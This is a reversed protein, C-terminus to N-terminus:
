SRTRRRCPIARRSASRSRAWCSARRVRGPVRSRHGRDPADVREAPRDARATSRMTPGPRSTASSRTSRSGSTPASPASARAWSGRWGRCCTRTPTPVVSANPSSRSCRTRRRASATSSGTPSGRSGRARRNSRSRWSWRRWWRSSRTTATGALRRRRGGCRPLDAHRLARVRRLDPDQARRRRPRLPPLAPDRDRDLAAVDPVRCRRDLRDAITDQSSFTTALSGSSRSVGFRVGGVQDTSARCRDFSPLPPHAVRRSGRLDGPLCLAILPDLRRSVASADIYLPNAVSVDVSGTLTKQGFLSTSLRDAGRLGVIFWLFPRWRPTVPPAWGPVAAADPLGAHAPDRVVLRLQQAVRHGRAVVRSRRQGRRLHLARGVLFSSATIFSAWLFLIGSRTAPSRSQRHARGRRRVDRVRRRVPDTRGVSEDNAVVLVMAVAAIALFGALVAWPWRAPRRSRPGIAEASSSM